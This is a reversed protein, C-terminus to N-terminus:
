NLCVTDSTYDTKLPRWEKKSNNYYSVVEYVSKKTTNKECMTLISQELWVNLSNYTKSNSNNSTDITIIKHGDQTYCRFETGKVMTKFQTPQKIVEYLPKRKIITRVKKNNLKNNIEKENSETENNAKNNTINVLATELDNDNIENMIKNIDINEIKEKLEAIQSRIYDMEMNYQLTKAEMEANLEQIKKNQTEKFLEKKRKVEKSFALQEQLAIIENLIQAEADDLENEKEKEKNKINTNTNINPMRFPSEIAEANNFNGNDNVSLIIGSQKAKDIIQQQKLVENEKKQNMFAGWGNSNTNM